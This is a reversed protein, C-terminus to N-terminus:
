TGIYHGKIMDRKRGFGKVKEVHFGSAELGRRVIGAATFTAFTTGEVSLRAMNEFLTNSWMDPNKAPAFGDLFWANVEEKIDCIADNMDGFYISLRIRGDEYDFEKLGTCDQPYQELFM